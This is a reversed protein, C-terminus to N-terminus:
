RCHTKPRLPFSSKKLATKNFKQQANGGTISLILDQGQRSRIFYEIFKNSTLENARVRIGNPAITMPKGLEPVLFTRGPAGVNALFLDGAQLDSKKLFEYSAKTVYKFPGKFGNSHDKLRLLIAYDEEDTQTVNEKLSAFSGNAVYDTYEGIEDFTKEVWGQPLQSM